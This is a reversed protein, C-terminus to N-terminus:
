ALEGLLAKAEKLDRTDFGETFWSYVPALLERAQHPRGQSRWLRALSMASRLEWSKAQQERAIALAREFHAEAEAGDDQPGMLAIEGAIRYVESEFMTEKTTEVARTAESICRRADVLQGLEAHAKALYAEYLPLWFTTGTVQSAALGSAIVQVADSPKDTSVLICGRVFTAREIWFSADKEEALALLEQAQAAATAYNGMLLYLPSIFFLVYMLTSVQGSYRAIELAQDATAAAADGYGLLWQALSRFGLLAAGPDQGFREAFARRQVPDYLAVAREFHDVARDFHDRSEVLSGTFMLSVGMLRHGVMLPVPAAQKEALTLFQAALERVADGNFAGANAVWIGYLVVFLLLPDELPEGLGEAQEILLHAREVAAKTEPAAQGKIHLLPTILAVQLKIQERRLAPTGPLAAIQDLARTFQAVAEFLASRELARQGAKGWLASAKEILGAETCHRALIEPQNEAIDPFGRELNETIRAHLARRPKRLLTGYAADQVLAHKFLYSAHPPVGQRFLLGAAILRDLAFGLETEPKSAVSALVAHSFERGIASGIQAVEKAQGLRDLRAMLSAHLSAPVALAPAPVAATTRQAEGESEAELVAKTMEEVFLPVGDTREIIDQRISESLAKNGTVRDIMATIEREGLRNLTLATVYPRGIWPPEFEPRYTVILLVGLTRLRDMTRGVAELSTPDIWHVDEFIMLVPKAQAWAELRTTLADLTKQRRQQPDLELTPYRGDNPLSLMDALLAADQPLTLSGALLVDLKDLKAQTTDDHTFGAAREMQSIIPYFASDTHQPSCFYRLRTHPENALREMLAATLRSKGIGAEGSLLVVQGEGSKAKSWRRLVIEVEEERGVLETFGGAHFADFRSEVSAPRLVVSCRVPGPIGKLNTAGFDELEFLHGILKRTDEAIVVENPEAIAQLRAALNPTEGVIAQEQSAGSGVLDGVVVLGTAIGVRSQLPAHTKLSGVAATLELGARVAREADDEHAEPYGFYILVGDGMYKAVFGGFRQVTDAVCKQYSSIVERLDEPDMSASLATSGVLDSFMVTVQRREARDESASSPAGSATATDVSSTKGSADSRLTAIADLLKMRHGLAAVGLEKLHEDTLNPLVTEDIENERFAAEYKALGLGRLWVVLDM